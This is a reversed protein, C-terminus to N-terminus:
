NNFYTEIQQGFEKPIAITKNQSYIDFYYKNSYKCFHINSYLESYKNNYLIINGIYKYQVLTYREVNIGNEILEFVKNIEKVESKKYYTNKDEKNFEITSINDSNPEDIEIQSNHFLIPQPRMDMITHFELLIFDNNDSDNTQYIGWNTGGAYGILEDFGHPSWIKDEM